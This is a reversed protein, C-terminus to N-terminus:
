LDDGGIPPDDPHIPGIIKRWPRTLLDYHETSILDRSVLAGATDRAVYQAAYQAASQAAYRAASQAAYQAAYWGADRAVYQASDRTAYRVANWAADLRDREEATLNQARAILAAVHEGQPGFLQHAPLEEVPKWADSARKNTVYSSNPTVVKHGRVSAVRFLRAPWKFSTCDAPSVSVSLYRSASIPHDLDAAPHRTIKGIQWKTRQDYFSTGDPRVAKYYQEGTM